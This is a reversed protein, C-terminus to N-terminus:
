LGNDLEHNGLALADYGMRVLVELYARGGGVQGEPTGQLWDGGDLVLVFGGRREVEERESAIAAALRPLGGALPPDERDIWTAPRPLVQGHLDNTHLVVLHVAEGARASAVLLLLAFLSRM